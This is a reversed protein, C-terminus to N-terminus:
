PICVAGLFYNEHLDPRGNRSRNYDLATKPYTVIKDPNANLYAGWWSFTSYSTINHSCLSMAWLEQYDVASIRHYPFGLDGVDGDSFVLFTADPVRERIHQVARTYYERPTHTNADAQVRVHVAVLTGPIGAIRDRIAQLSADDPSFLELIESRHAHFYPPWELYGDVAFHEPRQKMEPLIGPHPQKYYMSERYLVYPPSEPAPLCKRFITTGHDYGYREKLMRALVQVRSCDLPRGSDKALGYCSAIQFLVNGLGTNGASLFPSGIATIHPAIYPM